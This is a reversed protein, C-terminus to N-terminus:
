PFERIRKLRSGNKHIYFPIRDPLDAEPSNILSITKQSGPLYGLQSIALTTNNM